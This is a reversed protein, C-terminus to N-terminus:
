LTTTTTSQYLNEFIRNLDLAIETGPVQLVQRGEDPSLIEIVLIPPETLVPPQPGPNVVTHDPIRVRTASVQVRVETVAMVNWQQENTAL